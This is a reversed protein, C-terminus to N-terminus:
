QPEELIRTREIICLVEQAGLHDPEPKEGVYVKGKGKVRPYSNTLKSTLRRTERLTLQRGLQLELLLRIVSYRISLASKGTADALAIELHTAKLVM